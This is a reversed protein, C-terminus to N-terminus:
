SMDSARSISGRGRRVGLHRMQCLFNSQRNHIGLNNQQNTRQNYRPSSERAMLYVLISTVIYVKRDGVIHHGEVPDLRHRPVQWQDSMLAQPPNGYRGPRRTLNKNRLVKLKITHPKQFHDKLGQLPILNYLKRRM